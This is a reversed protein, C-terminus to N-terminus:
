KVLRMVVKFLFHDHVMIQTKYFIVRHFSLLVGPHIDDIKQHISFQEKVHNAPRCGLIRLLDTHLLVYPRYNM